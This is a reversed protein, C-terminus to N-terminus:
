DTPNSVTKPKRPNTPKEYFTGWVRGCVECRWCQVGEFLAGVKIRRVWTSENCKPCIPPRPGVKTKDAM